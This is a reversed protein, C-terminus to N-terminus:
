LHRCLHYTAIEFGNSEYLSLAGGNHRFVNLWIVKAGLGKAYEALLDLAETAFGQRRQDPNIFLHYLYVEASEARHAFWISGIVQEAPELRLSFFFHGPTRLGQPLLAEHQRRTTALAVEWTERDTRMRDAAYEQQQKAMYQSFTEDNM